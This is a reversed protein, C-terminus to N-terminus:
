LLQAALARNRNPDMAAFRWPCNRTMYELRDFLEEPDANAAICCQHFGFHQEHDLLGGLVWQWVELRVDDGCRNDMLTHLSRTLLFEQLAYCEADTIDDFSVADDTAIQELAESAVGMLAQAREVSEALAENLLRDIMKGAFCPKRKIASILLGRVTAEDQRQDAVDEVLRGLRQVAPHSRSLWDIEYTRTSAGMLDEPFAM